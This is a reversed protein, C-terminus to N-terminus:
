KKGRMKLSVEILDNPGLDVVPCLLNLKNIIREREIFREYIKLINSDNLIHKGLFLLPNLSIIYLNVGKKKITNIFEVIDGFRLGIDTILIIEGDNIYRLLNNLVGKREYCIKINPIGDLGKLFEPLYKKASRLNLNDFIKKVGFDDFLIITYNKNNLNLIGILYYILSLLYDTKSKRFANSIDVLIYIKGEKERLFDKVILHGYKASRKWDIYKYNDGPFYERLENFELSEYGTKINSLLEKGIKINRSKNISNKLSEMSPHVNIIVEYYVKIDTFYIKNIDFVRFIFRNIEFRGRKRPILDVVYKKTEGSKILIEKIKFKFNKADKFDKLKLNLPIKSNNKIEFVLCLKENEYIDFNRSLINIYIDVDFSVKLSLLYVLIAFGLISPVINVFLYGQAFLLIATIM